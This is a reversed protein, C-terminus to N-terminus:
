GCLLMSFLILPTCILTVLLCRTCGRAGYQTHSRFQEPRGGIWLASALTFTVLGIYNAPYSTRFFHMVVISMLMVLFTIQWAMLGLKFAGSLQVAIGGLLMTTLQIVLLGLMKRRFGLQIPFPMKDVSGPLPERPNAPAPPTDAPAVDAAAADAITDAPAAPAASAVSIVGRRSQKATNGASGKVRRPKDISIVIDTTDVSKQGGVLELTKDSLGLPNNKSTGKPRRPKPPSSM